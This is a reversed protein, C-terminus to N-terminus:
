GMVHENSFDIKQQRITPTPEKKPKESATTQWRNGHDLKKDVACLQHKMMDHVTKQKNLYQKGQM